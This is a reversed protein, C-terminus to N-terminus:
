INCANKVMNFKKVADDFKFLHEEDVLILVADDFFCIIHFQTESMIYGLDM